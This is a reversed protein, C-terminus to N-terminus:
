GPRFNRDLPARPGSNGTWWFRLGFRCGSSGTRLQAPTPGSDGPELRRFLVLFFFFLACPAAAPSTTSRECSCPSAVRSCPSPLLGALASPEGRARPLPRSRRLSTSPPTPSRRLQPRGRRLHPRHPRNRSARNSEEPPSSSCPVASSRTHKSESPLSECLPSSSPSDPPWPPEPPFLHPASSCPSRPLVPHPRSSSRKWPLCLLPARRPCPPMAVLRDPPLSAVTDSCLRLPRCVESFGGPAEIGVM